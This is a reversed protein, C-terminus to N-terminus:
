RVEIAPSAVRKEHKTATLKVLAVALACAGLTFLAGVPGTAALSGTSVVAGGVLSGFAIGANFSM